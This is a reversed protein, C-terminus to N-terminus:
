RVPGQRLYEARHFLVAATDETAQMPGISFLVAMLTFIPARLVLVYLCGATRRVFFTFHRM